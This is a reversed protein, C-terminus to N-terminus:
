YFEDAGEFVEETDDIIEVTLKACPTVVGFWISSNAADVFLLNQDLSSNITLTQSPSIGIPRGEYTFTVPFGCFYGDNNPLSITLNHGDGVVTNLEDM